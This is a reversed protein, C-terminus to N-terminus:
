PPEKVAHVAALAGAVAEDAKICERVWLRQPPGHGDQITQRMREDYARGAEARREVAEVLAVLADAHNALTLEAERRARRYGFAPCAYAHDVGCGTARGGDTGGDCTPERETMAGVIRRLEASTM